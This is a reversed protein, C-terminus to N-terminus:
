CWPNEQTGAPVFRRRVLESISLTKLMAARESSNNWKDAATRFDLGESEQLDHIWSLRKKRYTEPTYKADTGASSSSPKSGDVKVKKVPQESSECKSQLKKKKKTQKYQCSM